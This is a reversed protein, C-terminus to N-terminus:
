QLKTELDKEHDAADNKNKEELADIKTQCDSEAKLM